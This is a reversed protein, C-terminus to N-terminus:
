LWVTRMRQDVAQKSGDKGIEVLIDLLSANLDGFATEKDVGDGQGRLDMTVQDHYNKRPSLRDPLYVEGKYGTVIVRKCTKGKLASSFQGAFPAQGETRHVTHGEANTYAGGTYGTWCAVLRVDSIDLPLGDDVMQAALETPTLYVWTQELLKGAIQDNTSRRGHALILLPDNKDDKGMTKLDGSKGVYVANCKDKHTKARQENAYKAGDILWPDNFPIYFQAM